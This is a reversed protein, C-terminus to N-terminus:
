MYQGVRLPRELRGWLQLNKQTLVPEHIQPGRLSAERTQTRGSRGRDRTWRVHGGGFPTAESPCAEQSLFYFQNVM